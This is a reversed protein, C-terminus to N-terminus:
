EGKTENSVQVQYLHSWNKRRKAKSDTLFRRCGKRATQSSPKYCADEASLRKLVDLYRIDRRCPSNGSRMSLKMRQTSYFQLYNLCLAATSDWIYSSIKIQQELMCTGSAPLATILRLALKSPHRLCRTEQQVPYSTGEPKCSSTTRPSCSHQERAQPLIGNFIPPDQKLWEHMPDPLSFFLATRPLQLSM